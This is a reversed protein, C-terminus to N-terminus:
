AMVGFQGLLERLVLHGKGDKPNAFCAAHVGVSQASAVNQPKDDIFLVEAPTLGLETLIARFYDPDPKALGMECSFFCHDFLERYRLQEAMFTARHPQQNTALACGYGRQRLGSVVSLVDHDVMIINLWQCIDHAKGHAEWRALVPPLVDLLALAGTLTTDEAAHVQAVFEDVPEPAFGLIRTLDANRGLEPYQLVEDADFLVTRITM